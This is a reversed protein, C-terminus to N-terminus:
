AQTAVVPAFEPDHFGDFINRSSPPPDSQQEKMLSYLAELPMPATIQPSWPLGEPEQKKNPGDIIWPNCNNNAIDVTQKGEGAWPKWGIQLLSNPSIVITPPKM